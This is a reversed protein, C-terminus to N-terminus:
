NKGAQTSKNISAVIENWEKLIFQAVSEAADHHISRINGWRNGFLWNSYRAQPKMKILTMISEQFWKEDNGHREAIGSPSFKHSIWGHNDLEEITWAVSSWKQSHKVQINGTLRKGEHLVPDTVYKLKMSLVTLLSLVSLLV